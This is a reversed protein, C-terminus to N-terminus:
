PTATGRPPAVLSPRLVELIEEAILENAEPTVHGIDTYLQGEFDEFCGSLDTFEPGVAAAMHENAASAFIRFTKAWRGSRRLMEEELPATPKRGYVLYPQWFFHAKFGHEEALALVIRHNAM